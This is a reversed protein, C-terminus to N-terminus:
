EESYFSNSKKGGAGAGCSGETRSGWSWIEKEPVRVGNEQTRARQRENWGESCVEPCANGCCVAKFGTAQTEKKPYTCPFYSFSTSSNFKNWSQTNM